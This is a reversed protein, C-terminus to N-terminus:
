AGDYRRGEVGFEHIYDGYTLAGVGAVRLMRLHLFIFIEFPSGLPLFVSVELPLDELVGDGLSYEANGM